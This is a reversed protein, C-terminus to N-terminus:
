SAPHRLGVIRGGRRHANRGSAPTPMPAAKQASRSPTLRSRWTAQTRLARPSPCLPTIGTGRRSRHGLVPWGGQDVASPPVALALCLHICHSVPSVVVHLVRAKAASSEQFLATPLHAVSFDQVFACCCEFVFVLMLERVCVCVCTCRERLPSCHTHTHTSAQTEHCM